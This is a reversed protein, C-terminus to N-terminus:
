FRIQSLMQTANTLGDYLSPGASTAAVYLAAINCTAAHWLKLGGKWVLGAEAAAFVIVASVTLM